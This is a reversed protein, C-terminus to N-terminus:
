RGRGGPTARSDRLDDRPTGTPWGAGRRRAYDAERSSSAHDPPGDRARRQSGFIREAAPNWGSSGTTPRRRLHHRRGRLRHAARPVAQDRGDRRLPALQPHRHRPVRVADRAARARASRDARGRRVPQRRGPLGAHGADDRIPCVVVRDAGASGAGAASPRSRRGRRLRAGGAAPETVAATLEALDLQGVITARSRACSRSSPSACRSSPRKAARRRRSSARRPPSRAADGRRPAAVQGRTGLEAQRRALARRVVDELDQRSFPKILYEFAGHTLANKVTELSAYATIM